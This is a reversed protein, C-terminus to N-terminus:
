MKKALFMFAVLDRMANEAERAYQQAEPSLREEGHYSFFKGFLNVFANYKDCITKANEAIRSDLFMNKEYFWYINQFCNTLAATKEDWEQQQAKKFALRFEVIANYAEDILRVFDGDIGNEGPRIDAPFRDQIIKDISAEFLAGKNIESFQEFKLRQLSEPLNDPFSCEQDSPKVPIIKKGHKLAHELEIRVWDDEQVCTDLAGASLVLIFVPAEEIATYIREDFHGDRISNYDFFVKFRRAKLAQELLRADNAGTVRRYSIFIDYKQNNDTSM